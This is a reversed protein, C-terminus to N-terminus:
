KICPETVDRRVTEKPNYPESSLGIISLPRLGSNRVAHSWNPEILILESGRGTFHRRKPPTGEGNDWHLVWDSEYVVILVEKRRTHFHNGRVAGPLISAVHVDAIRGLFLLAEQSVTYSDGRADGSNDLEKCQLDEAM